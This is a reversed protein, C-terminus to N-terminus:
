PTGDEFYKKSDIFLMDQKLDLHLYLGIAYDELYEKQIEEKKSLLNAVAEESLLYFRGNCYKIKEIVLNTPLEPHIMYYKSIHQFPVDVIYGGYHVKPTKKHLLNMITTFFSTTTLMQDDDTKFIYQFEFTKQIAEYALIVKKPLSNYDDECKVWLVNSEWDFYFPEASQPDGLVHFYRLVSPLHKLWGNIQQTAKYRYKVCNMILLICDQQFM